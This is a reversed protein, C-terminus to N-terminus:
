DPNTLEEPCGDYDNFGNYNEPLTLCRDVSDSIGDSDADHLM